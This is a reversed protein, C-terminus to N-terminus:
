RLDAWAWEQQCRCKSDRKECAGVSGGSLALLGVGGTSVTGVDKENEDESTHAKFFEENKLISM